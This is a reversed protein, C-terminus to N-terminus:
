NSLIIFAGQILIYKGSQKNVEITDCILEMFENFEVSGSGDLDAVKMM